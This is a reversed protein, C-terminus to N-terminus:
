YYHYYTDSIVSMKTQSMRTAPINMNLNYPLDFGFGEKRRWNECKKLLAYGECALFFHM